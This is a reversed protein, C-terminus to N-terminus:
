LVVVMMGGDYWWWWAVVAVLTTQVRVPGREETQTTHKANRTNCHEVIRSREVLINAAPVDGGHGCHVGTLTGKERVKKEGANTGPPTAHALITHWRRFWPQKFESRAENKQKNQMGQTATNMLAAANSWSM